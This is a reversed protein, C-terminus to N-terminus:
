KILNKDSEKHIDGYLDIFLKFFSENDTSIRKALEFCVPLKLDDDVKDIMRILNATSIKELEKQM